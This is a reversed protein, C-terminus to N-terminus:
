RWKSEVSGTQATCDSMIFSFSFLPVWQSLTCSVSLILEAQQSTRLSMIDGGPKISSTQPWWPLLACLKASLVGARKSTPSHFNIASNIYSETVENLKPPSSSYPPLILSDTVTFLLPKVDVYIGKQDTDWSNYQRIWHSSCEKLNRGDLWIGILDM